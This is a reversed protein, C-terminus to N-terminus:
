LRNYPDVTDDLDQHTKLWADRRARATEVNPEVCTFLEGDFKRYDYQVYEKSNFRFTEFQEGGRPCTSCGQKDYKM